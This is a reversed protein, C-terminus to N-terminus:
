DLKKESFIGESKLYLRLKSYDQGKWFTESHVLKVADQRAVELVRYDEVIDAVKFVPLGSQKAGFFDGPGRLELDRESLEFGDTTEIM